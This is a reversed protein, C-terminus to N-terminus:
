RRSEWWPPLHRLALVWFVAALVGFVVDSPFHVQLYVRSFAVAAVVTLLSLAIDPRMCGTPRLLCATAFATVQMSHASPFSADAPMAILAPFIEPRPRAVVLKTLYALLAASTLAAPVFAAVSWSAGERRYGHWAVLASVPLLVFISGGWTLLWFIRDLWPTRWAEFWMLGSADGVLLRCQGDPCVLYGGGALVLAAVAAFAFPLAFSNVSM